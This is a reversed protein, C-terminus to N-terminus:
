GHKKVLVSLLTLDAPTIGELRSAQGFTAPRFRCLAQRAEPRLSTFVSYDIREPLRKSELESARRVEHHQREVYAAYKRDAHVTSWISDPIDALQPSSLVRRLDEVTFEPRRLVTGLPTNGIRAVDVSPQPSTTRRLQSVRIEEMTTRVVDDDEIFTVDGRVLVGRIEHYPDPIEVLFSARPHRRLNVVKQAKGYSTMYFAGDRAFYNMAVVHPFGDKDITALAAKKRERFFAAQEDPSLQIQQRRNTAM